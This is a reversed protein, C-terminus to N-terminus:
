AGQITGGPWVAQNVEAVLEDVNFPKALFRSIPPRVKDLASAGFATMVIVHHLREPCHEALYQIVGNGDIRPMMLDLVIVEYPRGEIIKELAEAGDRAVEVEFHHRMLIRKVLLRISADDDVVLARRADTM